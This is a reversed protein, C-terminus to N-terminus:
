EIKYDTIDITKEKKYQEKKVKNESIRKRNKQLFYVLLILPITIYWYTFIFILIVRILYFFFGALRFLFVLLSFIFIYSLIKLLTNNNM